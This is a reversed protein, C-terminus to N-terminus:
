IASIAIFSKLFLGTKVPKYICALLISMANAVPLLGYFQADSPSLSLNRQFGPKTM